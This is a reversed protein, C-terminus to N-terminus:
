LSLINVTGNAELRASGPDGAALGSGGNVSWLDTPTESPTTTAQVVVRGGGGGGGRRATQTGGAQGGNAEIRHGESADLVGTTLWISGGAGGGGGYYGNNACNMGNAGNALLSGALSLTGSVQIRLSGGGAGGAGMNGCGGGGGSGLTDPALADGYASGAGKTSNYGVGGAGGHGAGSGSRYNGESAVGGPGESAGHGQASATIVCSTCVGLSTVDAELNAQISASDQLSWHGGSLTLQEFVMEADGSLTAANTVALTFTSGELATGSSMMLSDTTVSVSTAPLLRAGAELVLQNVTLDAGAELSLESGPALSLSNWATPANLSNKAYATWDDAHDFWLTGDSGDSRGSGGEVSWQAPDVEGSVSLTTIM